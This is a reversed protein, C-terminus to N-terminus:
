LFVPDDADYPGQAALPVIPVVGISNGNGIEVLSAFPRVGLLVPTADASVLAFGAVQEGDGGSCTFTKMDGVMIPLGTQLSTFPDGWTVVTSRAYGTFTCEGLDALLTGIAPVVQNSYLIVKADLLPGDEPTGSDAKFISLFRQLAVLVWFM